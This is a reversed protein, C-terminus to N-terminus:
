TLILVGRRIASLAKGAMDHLTGTDKKFLNREHLQRKFHDLRLREM